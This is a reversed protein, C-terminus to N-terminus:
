DRAHRMAVLRVTVPLGEERVRHETATWVLGAATIEDYFARTDIRAADALLAQGGPALAAAIARATAGFAARDYLLEAALVVDFRACLPLRLVDAQVVDVRAAVRNEAASARVFALPAAERDVLVSRAGRVAAALGPLGLGCGLELVRRAGAPIARALVRAGSWLHAWYPPEPPNEGGLLAARDVHCELDDVTWLAITVDDLSETVRTARYAGFKRFRTTM